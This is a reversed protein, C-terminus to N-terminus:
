IGTVGARKALGDLGFPRGHAAKVANTARWDQIRQHVAVLAQTADAARDPLGTASASEIGELAVRLATLLETPMEKLEDISIGFVNGVPYKNGDKGRAGDIPATSPAPKPSTPTASGLIGAKYLHNTM